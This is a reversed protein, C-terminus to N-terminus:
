ADVIRSSNEKTTIFTGMITIVQALVSFISGATVTTAAKSPISSIARIHKM